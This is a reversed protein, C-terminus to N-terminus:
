WGTAGCCRLLRNCLVADAAAVAGTAGCGGIIGQKMQNSIRLPSLRRLNCLCFGVVKLRQRGRSKVCRRRSLSTSGTAISVKRTAPIYEGNDANSSPVTQADVKNIEQDFASTM